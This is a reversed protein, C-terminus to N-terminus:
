QNIPLTVNFTTGSSPNSDFWIKGSHREVINKTAFLGFGSGITDKEIANSARFFKSFINLEDDKNIGIGQNNISVLAENNELIHSLSIKVITNNNSYKVANGILNQFVVIIMEEDCTVSPIADKQKDFVISINKTKIESSFLAIVRELLNIIDVKKFNFKISTDNSHNISLLNNILSLAHENNSMSKELYNKQEQNISGIEETLFMKLTWKFATLSTRLQHVSISILDSKNENMMKLKENEEKLKEIDNM